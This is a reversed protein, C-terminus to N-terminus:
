YRVALLYDQEPDDVLPPIRQPRSPFKPPPVLVSQFLPSSLRFIVKLLLEPPAVGLPLKVLLLNFATLFTVQPAAEGGRGFGLLEANFTLQGRGRGRGQAM